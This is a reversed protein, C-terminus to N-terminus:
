LFLDSSIFFVILVLFALCFTLGLLPIWFTIKPIIFTFLVAFFFFTFSWGYYWKIKELPIKKSFEGSINLQPNRIDPYITQQFPASSEQTFNNDQSSAFGRANLPKRFRYKERKEIAFQIM